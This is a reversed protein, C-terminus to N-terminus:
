KNLKNGSVNRKQTKKFSRVFQIGGNNDVITLTAQNHDILLHSFGHSVSSFLLDKAGSGSFVPYLSAGGTGSIVFTLQAPGRIVQKNHHDGALYFDVHDRLDGLLKEALVFDKGGKSYSLIPHHGYVIKWRSESKDLRDSLWVAQKLDFHNTDIAFISVEGKVLEYYRAPMKWKKSQSSYLIQARANGQYDHNGLVPYFVFDLYKYPQSFHTKWKTDSVSKVGQPYFNDGLLLAFQCLNSECFGSAAKAMDAQTKEGTGGDGWFVFGTAGLLPASLYFGLLFIWNIHAKRV